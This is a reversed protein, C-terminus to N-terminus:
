LMEKPVQNLTLEQEAEVTDKDLRRATGTAIKVAEKFDKEPLLAMAHMTEPQVKGLCLLDAAALNGYHHAWHINDEDDARAMVADKDEGDLVEEEVEKRLDDVVGLAELAAIKRAKTYYRSLYINLIEYKTHM